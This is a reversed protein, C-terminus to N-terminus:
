KNLLWDGQGLGKGFFRTRDVLHGSKTFENFTGGKRLRM